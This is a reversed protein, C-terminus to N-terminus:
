TLTEKQFSYKACEQHAAQEMHQCMSGERPHKQFAAAPIQKEMQLQKSQQGGLM